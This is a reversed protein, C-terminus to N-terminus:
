LQLIAFFQEFLNFFSVFFSCVDLLQMPSLDRHRPNLYRIDTENAARWLDLVRAFFAQAGPSSLLIEDDSM